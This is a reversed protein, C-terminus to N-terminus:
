VMVIHCAICPTMCVLDGSISRLTLVM